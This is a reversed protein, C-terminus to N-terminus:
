FNRYNNWLRNRIGIMFYYNSSNTQNFFYYHNEIFLQCNQFFTLEYSLTLNLHLINIKSGQGTIVGYDYPRENYPMYINGGFSLSDNKDFGKMYYNVFAKLNFNGKNMKVEAYLENFNSGLPHALAFGQNGYNLSYNIHAYTYPRVYNNEIRYFWKYGKDEFYGKIGLQYAYKNGWWNTKARYEALVFDDIALQGYLTHHKYKFSIQGGMLSNDSSGLSYEQPRYFIIPNLYEADFGRTLGKESPAFLVNEFLGINMWKTVNYSLYHTVGYKSQWNNASNKERLFHYIVDYEFHWFNTKVQAFPAPIGYDSLLLSRAGEGIFNNDIGGQFSFISNPKYLVRARLDAYMSTGSGTTDLFYSRPLFWKDKTNSVGSVVGVRSYFKEYASSIINFGLGSRYDLQNNGARTLLDVTPEITTVIPYDKPRKIISYCLCEKPMLNLGVYPKVSSHFSIDEPLSDTPLDEILLSLSNQSIGNFSILLLFINIIWRM